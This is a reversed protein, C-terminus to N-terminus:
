ENNVILVQIRRTRNTEVFLPKVPIDAINGAHGVFRIADRLPEGFVVLNARPKISRPPVSVMIPLPANCLPIQNLFQALKSKVEIPEVIKSYPGVLVGVDFQISVQKTAAARSFLGIDKVAKLM